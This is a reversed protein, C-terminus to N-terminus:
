INSLKDLDSVDDCKIIKGNIINISYISNFYKSILNKDSFLLIFINNLNDIEEPECKYLTQTYCYLNIPKKIYELLKKDPHYGSIILGDSNSIDAELFKNMNFIINTSTYYKIIQDTQKNKFIHLTPNIDPFTEKIRCFYYLRQKWNMIKTYYSSDLEISKELSFNYKKCSEVLINNFNHSYFGSYFRTKDWESRSRTDVFIFEKTQPFHKVPDIHYGTGLYLLKHPYM